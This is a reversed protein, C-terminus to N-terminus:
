SAPQAPAGTGGGYVATGTPCAEAVSGAAVAVLWDLLVGVARVAVGAGDLVSAGELVRVGAAVAVAVVSGDLEGVVLAVGLAVAVSTGVRSGVRAGTIMVGSPGGSLWGTM